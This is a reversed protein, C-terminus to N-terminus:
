QRFEMGQPESQLSETINGIKCCIDDIEDTPVEWTQGMRKIIESVELIRDIEEVGQVEAMEEAYRCLGKVTELQMLHSCHQPVNGKQSTERITEDFEATWDKRGDVGWYASIEDVMMRIQRVGELDGQQAIQEGYIFLGKLAARVLEKDKHISRKDM